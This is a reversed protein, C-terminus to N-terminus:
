IIPTKILNTKIQTLMQKLEQLKKHSSEQM